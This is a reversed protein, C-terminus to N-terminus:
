KVDFGYIKILDSKTKVSLKRYINKIHYNVTNISINLHEGIQKALYGQMLFLCVENEKETLTHILKRGKQYSLFYDLVMQEFISIQEKKTLLMIYPYLYEQFELFIMIIGDTECLILLDSFHQMQLAFNGKVACLLLNAYIKHFLLGEEEYKRLLILACAKVNEYEQTVLFALGSTFTSYQIPDYPLELKTIHLQKIEDKRKNIVYLYGLACQVEYMLMQCSIYNELWGIYASSSVDDNEYLSIRALLFTAAIQIADQHLVESIHKSKLALKKADDIAGCEMYYEAEALIDMGMGNNHAIDLYISFKEQLSKYLYSLTYGKRYYISLIHPCGLTIILQNGAIKSKEGNFIAHAEKFYYTMMDLNGFNIFSKIIYMEAQLLDQNGILKGSDFLTEFKEFMMYGQYPDITTLMDSIIKLYSFPEKAIVNLPLGTYVESILIPYEDIYNYNAYRKILDLVKSYQESKHYHYIAFVIQQHKLSWAALKLHITKVQKQSLPYYILIYNKLIHHMHFVGPKLEIFFFHLLAMQNIYQVGNEDDILENLYSLTFIEISSFYSFAYMYKKMDYVLLAEHLAHLVYKEQYDGYGNDHKLLALLAYIWGNCKHFLAGCDDNSLQLDNCQAMNKIDYLDYVFYEYTIYLIKEYSKKIIFPKLIDDSILILRLNNDKSCLNFEEIYKETMDYVHDIILYKISDTRKEKSIVGQMQEFSLDKIADIYIRRNKSYATMYYKLTTTKGSGWPAVIYTIRYDAM